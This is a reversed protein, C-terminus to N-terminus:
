QDGWMRKWLQRFAESTGSYDLEVRSVEIDQPDSQDIAYVFVFQSLEEEWGAIEGFRLDIFELTGQNDQVCYWDQTIQKLKLIKPHEKLDGLLHHNKPVFKYTAPESDFHSHYGLYFGQQTEVNATWLVTNLPTPRSDYRIVEEHIAGFSEEFAQNAITKSTTTVLLYLSSIGIGIWNLKRRRKSERNLVLAWVLFAMFPLTYLPDVVFVTKFAVRYELPWFVQTGWTTFCDLLPHTFLALFMLWSWSKWGLNLRKHLNNVIFGLMVAAIIAFILSHSFGRHVMAADVDDVIQRSLVDLDPITGGIAGWFAAWKGAKKGLAAEGVAAGM